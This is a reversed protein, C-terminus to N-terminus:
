LAPRTCGRVEDQKTILRCGDVTSFTMTPGDDGTPQFIKKRSGMPPEEASSVVRQYEAVSRVTGTHWMAEPSDMAGADPLLGCDHVRKAM